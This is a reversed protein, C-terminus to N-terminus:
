FGRLLKAVRFSLIGLRVVHNERCNEEQNDAGQERRMTLRLTFFDFQTRELNVRSGHIGRSSESRRLCVSAGGVRVTSVTNM